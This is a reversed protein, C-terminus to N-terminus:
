TLASRQLTSMKGGRQGEKTPFKTSNNTLAAVSHQTMVLEFNILLRQSESSAGFAKRRGPTPPVGDNLSLDAGANHQIHSLAIPAIRFQIM